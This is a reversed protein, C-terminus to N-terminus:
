NDKEYNRNTTHIESMGEDERQAIIIQRHIFTNFIEEVYHMCFLCIRTHEGPTAM